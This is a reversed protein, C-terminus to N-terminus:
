EPVVYREPTTFIARARFHPPNPANSEATFSATYDGPPLNLRPTQVTGTTLDASTPGYVVVPEGPWLFLYQGPQIIGDFKLTHDGIKLQPNRLTVPATLAASKEPPIMHLQMGIASPGTTLRIDWSLAVSATSSKEDDSEQWEGYIVRQFIDRANENMLRYDRRQDLPRNEDEPARGLLPKAVRLLNQMQPSVRGSLRLIEYRKALDLIQNTFPHAKAASVSVQYSFSAGYGITTGLIYEYMDPTATTDYGYYWGVDLPIGKVKYANFNGAREELYGKLDGHGDASATRALQHWSFHSFSSAQVIINPNKLKSVYANVLRSNYRGHSGQLRESGDLYIMDINCANAVEAFNSTVEDLLTTDMDYMHYGYSRALHHVVEGASHAAANTGLHGRKCGTFTYPATLTRSTYRILEDGIQLVTGNGMYGGDIDPFGPPMDSVVITTTHPDMATTLTTEADKFLRPDPVPTIYPDNSDISAGLLHFGVSIGNDRFRQVTRVLAPLGDPFNKRNVEYHGTSKCWSNQLILVHKFGGRRVLKMADDFQSEKFSTLFLYSENVTPSVKNWTGGPHPVVIKAAEEFQQIAQFLQEKPCAIVAISDGVGSFRLDWELQLMPQAATWWPSNASEFDEVLVSETTGDDGSILVHIDDIDCTVTQNPPMSNFYLNLGALNDGKIIDLSDQTIEINRWGTFDIRLYYDRAGGVEDNLQFKLLQDNGDGRVRASVGRIEEMKLRQPYASGRMVWGRSSTTSEATFSAYHQGTTTIENQLFTHSCGSMDASTGRGTSGPIVIEPSGAMLALASDQIFAANLTGEKKAQTPIPLRLLRLATASTKLNLESLRFLTFGSHPELTLAISSGDPFSLDLTNNTLSAATPSLSSDATEITACALPISPTHSTGDLFNIRNIKGSPDLTLSASTGIPLTMATALTSVITFAVCTIFHRYSAAFLSRIM